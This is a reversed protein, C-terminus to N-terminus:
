FLFQFQGRLVIQDDEPSQVMGAGTNNVPMPDLFWLMDFTLKAAHKKFYYNTGFTLIGLTDDEALIARAVANSGGGALSTGSSSGAGGGYYAGDFDIWEFRGFVDWTDPIVFVGAQVVFAHQTADMVANTASAASGDNDDIRQGIYAAV